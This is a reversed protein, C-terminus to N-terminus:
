ARWSPLKRQMYWAYRCSDCLVIKGYWVLMGAVVRMILGEAQPTCMTRGTQDWFAGLFLDDSIFM